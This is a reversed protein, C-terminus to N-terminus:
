VQRPMKLLDLIAEGQSVARNDEENYEYMLRKLTTFDPSLVQILDFQFVAYHTLM